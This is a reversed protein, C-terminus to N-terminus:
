WPKEIENQAVPLLSGCTQSPKTTSGRRRPSWSGGDRHPNVQCASYCTPHEGIAAAERRERFVERLLRRRDDSSRVSQRMLALSDTCDHSSPQFLAASGAIDIATQKEM